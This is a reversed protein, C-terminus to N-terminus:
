KKQNRRPKNADESSVVGTTVLLSMSYGLIAIGTMMGITWPDSGLLGFFTLIAMAFFLMSGFLTWTWRERFSRQNLAAGLILFANSLFFVFLITALLEIGGFPHALLLLGFVIFVLSIFIGWLFDPAGKDDAAGVLHFIGSLLLAIGLMAEVDIVGMIPSSVCLLGALFLVIGSIARTSFTNMLIEGM